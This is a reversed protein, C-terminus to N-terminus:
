LKIAKLAVLYNGDEDFSCEDWSIDNVLIDYSDYVVRDLINFRRGIFFAVLDTYGFSKSVSFYYNGEEVKHAILPGDYMEDRIIPSIARVKIM